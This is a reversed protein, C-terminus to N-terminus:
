ARGPLPVRQAVEITLGGDEAYYPTATLEMGQTGPADSIRVPMRATTDLDAARRTGLRVEQTVGEFSVSLYLDWTGPPLPWGSSTQALNIRASFRGMARTKGKANTLTDDRRATVAHTEQTGSTRERLVVRTARDKTSLQEFFAYGDLLLMPGDWRAKQLQQSVTMDGTIDFLEDPLGVQPDRFFPLTTFVRGYEVTKRVVPRAKDAEFAAIQGAEAFRGQALLAFRVAVMRPLLALAGPSAQTRLVESAAWLTQDREAPDAASLLAQATAGGLEVELHRSQLRDRRPGEPLQSAVLALMRSALAVRDAPAGQVPPPGKVVCTADGVVSVNDAGIFAGATFVQEDGTPMDTPFVLGRRHLLSTRFLKDPTLSWYVRSSFADTYAQNKRFMATPVTHRGSSELKGLVVDAENADAAAVMRQLADPALRDTAELFIVYRGRVQSLAWNRAAAPSLGHSVQGIRVFGPYQHAARALVSGSEDTSGDDVGIIELRDTGITQAAVSALCAELAQAQNSVRVAVSVDKLDAPLAVATNM